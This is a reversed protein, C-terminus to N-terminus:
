ELLACDIYTGGYKRLCYRMCVCTLLDDLEIKNALTSQLSLLLLGLALHKLLTIMNTHLLFGMQELYIM